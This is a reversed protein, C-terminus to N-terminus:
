REVVFFIDHLALTEYFAAGNRVTRRVYAGQLRHFNGSADPERSIVFNLALRVIGYRHVPGVETPQSVGDHNEDVWIRLRGWIGDNADIAGDGNGGSAPDDYRRLAQFGDGARTGDPLINGSGFLESGGNVSHDTNLDLWLVGESTDPNTWGIREDLGDGDLDFMVGDTIPTTHIGDGNLDLVLPSCQEDCENDSGGGGGEGGGPSGGSDTTWQADVASCEDPHPETLSIWGGGMLHNNCGDANALGFVHGLEHAIIGSFHASCDTGRLDVPANAGWTDWVTIEGGVVAGNAIDPLGQGCAGDGRTSAGSIHTVTVTIGGTGNEVVPPVAAAGCSNWIAAAGAIASSLGANVVNVSAATTQVNVNYSVCTQAAAELAILVLLSLTLYRM